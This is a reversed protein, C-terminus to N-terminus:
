ISAILYRFQVSETATSDNLYYNTALM